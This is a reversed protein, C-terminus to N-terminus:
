RAQCKCSSVRATSESLTRKADVCRDDDDGTMRCLALVARKMSALARCPSGCADESKEETRVAGGAQASSDGPRSTARPPEPSPRESAKAESELSARARAIRDQAEEITRPESGEDANEASERAPSVKPQVAEAGGCAVTTLALVVFWLRRTM